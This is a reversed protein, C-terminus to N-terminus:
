SARSPPCRSTPPVAHHGNATLQAMAPEGPLGTRFAEETVVLHRPILAIAATGGYPSAKLTAEIGHRKALQSVM